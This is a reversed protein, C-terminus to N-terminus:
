GTFSEKLRSWMSRQDKDHVPLEETKAYESILERQAETLRRPVVLQLLVVLDGRGGGRLSPLGKGGIRHVDGHQSGAPIPLTETGDIGEIELEAGLAAQAFAIRHVVILDDDDREFRDHAAVQVMVHLDGRVGEGAPSLEPPPPEGEGHIRVVQGERIGAPIKVELKRSVRVRGEGRCAKCRHVVLRGKGRCRPCATVMRFMGGFGVQAVKGQGQCDPCTEPEHGPEVGSGSCETCVDLRTFSVERGCGSLVEELTVEVSTELDYGRAPGRRGRPGRGGGPFGGGGFIDGFMSFIDDINMSGFDHGPTERLGAHGYQDYRARRQPDSLVEYARACEKFRTEAEADGRNHDPHHKLALRRYASKIQDGSADREIGLIEYYCRETPM